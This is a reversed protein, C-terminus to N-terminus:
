ADTPGTSHSTKFMTAQECEIPHSSYITLSLEPWVKGTLFPDQQESLGVPNQFIAM